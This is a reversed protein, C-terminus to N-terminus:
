SLFEQLSRYVAAVPLGVVNFYDGEIGSIHRSFLGQIGYAGAKDMPEGSAIYAQIEDKTMGAVHVATKEAFSFRKTVIGDKVQALTVGTYVEHTKGQLRQLMIFADKEDKPKGFIEGDLTVITDAGLVLTDEQVVAATALCKKASLEKVMEAPDTCVTSEDCGSVIVRFPIELMQLLEKRRPSGSALVLSINKEM